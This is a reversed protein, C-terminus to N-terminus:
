YGTDYNVVNVSLPNHNIFDPLNKMFITFLEESNGAWTTHQTLLLNDQQWLKSDAPLPETTTVDLAAYKITGDNLKKLLDTENVTAGRGINIFLFLDNFLDLNQQNFFHNTQATSPLSNIVIAINDPLKNLNNIAFVKDFNNAPHGSTNVGYVPTDFSKLYKAIQQGIQGTGFIIVPLSRLIFQNTYPQWKKQNQYINLGRAFYFIYSIVSQAIPISRQGSANTLIIKQASFTDLPMYDVGASYAQIWKLQHNPTALINNIIDADWGYSIDINPYHKTTLNEPTIVVVDYSNLIEIDADTLPSLALLNVTM